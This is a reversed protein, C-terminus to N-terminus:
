REVSDCEGTGNGAGAAAPPADDAAAGADAVLWAGSAAPLLAAELTEAELSAVDAALSALAADDVELSADDECAADVADTEAAM